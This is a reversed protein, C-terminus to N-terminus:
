TLSENIINFSSTLTVDINQHKFAFVVFGLLIFLLLILLWVPNLTAKM